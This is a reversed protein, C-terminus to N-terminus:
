RAKKLRASSKPVCTLAAAFAPTNGLVEATEKIAAVIRKNRATKERSDGCRRRALYCACVLTGAWTRFDKTSFSSGM